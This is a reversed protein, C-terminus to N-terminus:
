VCALQVRPSRPSSPLAQKGPFCRNVQLAHASVTQHPKHPRRATGGKRVRRVRAQRPRATTAQCACRRHRRTRASSVRTGRSVRAAASRRGSVALRDSTVQLARLGAHTHTHVHQQATDHQRFLLMCLYLTGAPCYLCTPQGPVSYQGPGCMLGTLNSTGAPCYYGSAICRASCGRPCPTLCSQLM